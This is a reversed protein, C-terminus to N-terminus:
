LLKKELSVDLEEAGRRKYFKIAETNAASAVYLIREVGKKKCWEEFGQLLKGGIGKGRYSDKVYMNEAEAMRSIIRYEEPVIMAGAIYGIIEGNDEAVFLYSDSSEIASRFYEEGLKSFPYDADITPDYEKKEKACLLHNLEQIAKLDSLTAKRLVTEMYKNRWRLPRM